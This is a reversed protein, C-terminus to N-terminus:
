FLHTKLHHRFSVVSNSSKVHEHSSNWLTPVAASFPRTRAHTKFIPVSMMLHLCSSRPERPKLAVPLISFLYSPEGFLFLRIPLPLWHLSELLPVSNPFRPSRRVVRALCNQACQLKLIDKSAINYLLSNCYDLRSTILATAITQAVSLSMYRRIRRLDFTVIIIAAPAVHSLFM